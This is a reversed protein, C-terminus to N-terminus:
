LSIMAVISARSSPLLAIVVPRMNTAGSSMVPRNVPNNTLTSSAAVWICSNVRVKIGFIRIIASAASIQPGQINRTTVVNM